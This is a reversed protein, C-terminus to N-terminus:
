RQLARTIRRVTAQAAWIWMELSQKEMRPLCYTILWFWDRLNSGTSHYRLAHLAREGKAEDLRMFQQCHRKAIKISLPIQVDAKQKSISSQHVRFHLLPKPIGVVAGQGILRGWLSFDEAHREKTLYGGVALFADKKIMVTPHVIPCQYCLRLRILAQSLILRASPTVFANEGFIHIQTHCLVADHNKQIAAWQRELREPHAIDDCDMRAIWQARSEEVGRNLAIVIGKHDLPIIRIRSEKAAYEALIEPTADTSGDDLIIFEFGSFTQALISDIAERLHAAGNWVPMVVSILPTTM